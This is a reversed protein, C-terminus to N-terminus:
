KGGVGLRGVVMQSDVVVAEDVAVSVQRWWNVVTFVALTENVVGCATSNIITSQSV